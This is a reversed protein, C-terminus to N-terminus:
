SLPQKRRVGVGIATLLGLGAVAAPEPVSAGVKAVPDIGPQQQYTVTGSATYDIEIGADPSVIDALFDILLGDGYFQDAEISFYEYDAFLGDSDDFSNEVAIGSFVGDEFIALPILPYFGVPTSYGMDELSYTWDYYSFSFTDLFRGDLGQTAVGETSVSGYGTFVAGADYPAGAPESLFNAGMADIEVEFSFDFAEAPAATFAVLGALPATLIIRPWPSDVM